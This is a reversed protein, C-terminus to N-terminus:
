LPELYDLDKSYTEELKFLSFISLGICLIGTYLTAHLNGFYPTLFSILATVGIVSGRVFNPVTTTVTARLNTGFQESSVTVFIIWYGQAIGLFFIITYFLTASIGYACFYATTFIILLGISMMLSKKRSHLWQSILGWLLSGLSAGIYHIMVAQASVITGQIHFEKQAFESSFTILVGIVYWVPVGLLICYLYKLFRKRNSFLMFFNGRSVGETKLKTFMGSEAVYIRLILLLLGQVGGVIYATKWSFSNTIAFGFVAGLIGILGVLTTGYGRTEKTMVESILTIGAGLEGALGLGAIFRMVAYQTINVVFANAINALSYLLITFFLVSLRGKKDGLIGWIIGGIVMGLMQMNQLFIGQSKLADGVFGLDTLSKVRVINFLTLDYIDVFYGLAAVIVIINFTRTTLKSM